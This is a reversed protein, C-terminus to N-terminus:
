VHARGIQVTYALIMEDRLGIRDSIYNEINQTLDEEGEKEKLFPNQALERNDIESIVGEEFNFLLVPVMIISFFLVCTMVRLIKM